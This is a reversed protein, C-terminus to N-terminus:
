WYNPSLHRDFTKKCLGLHHRKLILFSRGAGWCKQLVQENNGIQVWRLKRQVIGKLLNDM